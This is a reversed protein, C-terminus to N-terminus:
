AEVVLWGRPRANLFTRGGKRKEELKCAVYLISGPHALCAAELEADGVVGVFGRGVLRLGISVQRPDESFVTVRPETPIVLPYVWSADDFPAGELGVDAVMRRFRQYETGTLSRTAKLEVLARCPKKLKVVHNVGAVIV